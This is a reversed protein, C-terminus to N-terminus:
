KKVRELLENIEMWGPPPQKGEDIMAKGRQIATMLAWVLAKREQESLELNM